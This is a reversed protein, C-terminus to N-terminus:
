LAEIAEVTGPSMLEVLEYKAGFLIQEKLMLILQMFQEKTGRLIIDEIIKTFQGNSKVRRLKHWVHLEEDTLERTYRPPFPVISVETQNETRRVAMSVNRM